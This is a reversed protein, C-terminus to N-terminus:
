ECEGGGGGGGGIDLLDSAGIYIYIYIYMFSFVFGYMLTCHLHSILHYLHSPASYPWSCLLVARTYHTVGACVLM